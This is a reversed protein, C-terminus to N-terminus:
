IARQGIQDLCHVTQSQSGRQAINAEKRVECTARHGVPFCWFVGRLDCSPLICWFIVMLDIEGIM